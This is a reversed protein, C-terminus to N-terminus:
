LDRALLANADLSEGNRFAAFLVTEEARGLPARASIFQGPVVYVESLPKYETLLGDGHDVVVVQGYHPSPAAAVRVVSGPLVAVVTPEEAALEVGPEFYWHGHAAHRRWGATHTITGSVPLALAHPAGNTRAEESVNPAPPHSDEVSAVFERTLRPDDPDAGDRTVGPSFDTSIDSARIREDGAGAGTFTAGDVGRADTSEFGLGTGTESVISSASDQARDVTGRGSLTSTLAGIGFWLSGIVAVGVVVVAGRALVGRVGSGLAQWQQRVKGGYFRFFGQVLRFRRVVGYGFRKLWQM